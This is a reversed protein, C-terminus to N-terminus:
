EEKKKSPAGERSPHPRSGQYMKIGRNAVLSGIVCMVFLLLIRTLLRFVENGAQNLNLPSGDAGTGIQQGPPVSFLQYAERFTFGLIGVGVLFVLIGVGGGVADRENAM